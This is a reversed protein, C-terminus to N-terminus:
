ELNYRETYFTILEKITPMKFASESNELADRELNARVKLRNCSEFRSQILAWKGGILDGSEYKNIGIDQRARDLDGCQKMYEATLKKALAPSVKANTQATENAMYLFRSFNQFKVVQDVTPITPTSEASVVSFLDLQAAPAPEDTLNDIFNQACARYLQRNNEVDVGNLAGTKFVVRICTQGSKCDALREIEKTLKAVSWAGVKFSYFQSKTIVKAFTILLAGTEDFMLVVDTHKPGDFMSIQNPDRKIPETYFLNDM